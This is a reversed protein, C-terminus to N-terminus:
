TDKRLYYLRTAAWAHIRGGLVWVTIAAAVTVACLYGAVADVLM